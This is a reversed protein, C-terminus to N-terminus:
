NIEEVLTSLEFLVDPCFDIGNSWFLTGYSDLKVTSFYNPNVLQRYLDSKVKKTILESLDIIRKQGNNFICIIKFPQIEIIDKIFYLM